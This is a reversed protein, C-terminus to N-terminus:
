CLRRPYAAATDTHDNPCVGFTLHGTEADISVVPHVLGMSPHELLYGGLVLRPRDVGIEQRFEPNLLLAALVALHAAEELTMVTADDATVLYGFDVIEWRLEPRCDTRNPPYACGLAFARYFDKSIRVSGETQGLAHIMREFTGNTSGLYPVLVPTLWPTARQRPIERIAKVWQERTFNWGFEKALAKLRRVQNQPSAFSVPPDLLTASEDSDTVSSPADIDCIRRVESTITPQVGVKAIMGTSVRTREGTRGSYQGYGMETVGVQKM